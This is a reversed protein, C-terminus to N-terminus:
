PTVPHAAGSEGVTGHGGRRLTPDRLATRLGADEPGSQGDIAAELEGDTPDIILSPENFPVRLTDGDTTEVIVCDGMSEIVVYIRGNVIAKIPHRAEPVLPSDLTRPPRAPSATRNYGPVWASAM